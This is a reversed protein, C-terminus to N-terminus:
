NYRYKKLVEKLKYQSRHLRSLVTGQPIKLIKATEKTSHGEILRLVAVTRLKPELTQLAMQLIEKLDNNESTISEKTITLEDVSIYRERNRKRKKLENLSLNIAIRTLYTKLSSEHKFSNINFYLKIFVEQAIEETEPTNGLLGFCVNAIVREYKEVLTKFALRDDNKVAAVLEKDTLTQSSMSM